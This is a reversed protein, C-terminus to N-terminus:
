MAKSLMLFVFSIILLIGPILVGAANVMGVFLLLIAIITTLFSDVVLVEIFGQRMSLILFIFFFSMLILYGLLFESFTGTNTVSSIGTFLDVINTVNDMFTTNYIADTM